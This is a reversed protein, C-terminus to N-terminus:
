LRRSLVKLLKERYAKTINKQQKADIDFYNYKAKIKKLWEQIQKYSVRKVPKRKRGGRKKPPRKYAKHLKNSHEIEYTIRGKTTSARVNRYNKLDDLLEGTFTFNINDRNYDPHTTNSRSYYDRFRKTVVGAAGYVRDRISKVFSEGVSERVEKSRSAKTIEKRIATNVRKLGKVKIKARAM